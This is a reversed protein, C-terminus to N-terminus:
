ELKLLVGAGPALRLAATVTGAAGPQLGVADWTRTGTVFRTVQRTGAACRLEVTQERDVARNVPLLYRTGQADAFLGLTLDRAPSQVWLDAPVATTHPPLPETHYVARSTLGLLTPGLAAMELNLTKIDAGSATLAVQGADGRAFILSANFWQIGRVGYALALYVSQRLKAANDPLYTAGPKGWEWRPDANAEVWCLLDQGHQLAAARHVELRWCANQTGWWWQYYDYSLFRPKVAEYYKDLNMWAMLNVYAPHRPDAVQFAAAAAAAEALKEEAPEDRVYWGWVAQDDKLKAALEPTADMVIAQLGHKRCLELHEAKAMVVNFGAEAYAKASAEDTPSGWTSILFRELKWEARAVGALLGMVLVIAIRMGTKREKVQCAGLEVRLGCSLAPDVRICPRGAPLKM